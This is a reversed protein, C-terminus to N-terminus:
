AKIAGGHSIFSLGAASMGEKMWQRIKNAGVAKELAKWANREKTWPGEGFIHGALGNYVIDGLYPVAEGTVVSTASIKSEDYEFSGFVSSTGHAKAEAKWSELLENTRQYVTPQYADYVIRQVQSQNEELIKDVVYQTAQQLPKILQAALQTESRAQSGM